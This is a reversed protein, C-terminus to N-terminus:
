ISIWPFPLEVLPPNKINELKSIIDQQLDEVNLISELWSIVMDQTIDGYLIFNDELPEPLLTPIQIHATNNDEDIGTYSWDVTHIVNTLGNLVPKTYIKNINWSYTIM